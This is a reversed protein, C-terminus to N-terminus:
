EWVEKIPNYSGANTNKKIPIGNFLKYTSKKKWHKFLEDINQVMSQAMWTSTMKVQETQM